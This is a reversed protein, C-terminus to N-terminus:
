AAEFMQMFAYNRLNKITKEAASQCPSYIAKTPMKKLKFYIYKLYFDNFFSQTHSGWSQILYFLCIERGSFEFIFGPCPAHFVYNLVSFWRTSQLLAVSNLTSGTSGATRGVPLALEVSKKEERKGEGM